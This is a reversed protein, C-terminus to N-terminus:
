LDVCRIRFEDDANLLLLMMWWDFGCGQVIVDCGLTVKKNGDSNISTVVGPAGAADDLYREPGSAVWAWDDGIEMYINLKVLEGLMARGGRLNGSCTSHKKPAQGKGSIIYSILRHCLRQVPDRIYTYSPAGRLFDRGSSIEVWYDSLDGKDPIVRESGLWYAGFRDEAMEEAADLGMEDGIRCTSFFEQGDDGTYIMRMREALDQRMDSTLRNFDLIHVRNVNRDFIM